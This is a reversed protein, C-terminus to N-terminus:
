ESFPQVKDRESQVYTQDAQSLKALPVSIIKGDAKELRINEGQIELLIASVSFKETM